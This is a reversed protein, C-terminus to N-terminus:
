VIFFDANTMALGHAVTAFQVAAAGGLGDKDYSIAGTASNYIIRDSADAAAAGIHFAAAALTGTITLATFIANELRITDNVVVFDSITDINTAGLAGNFFFTDNGAGGILNDIGLGGNILDNGAGGSLKNAHNGGYIQDNFQTGIVNPINTVTDTNGFGDKATDAPLGAQPGNGLLNVIVGLTGGNAADTSYDVTDLGSNGNLFDNGRGGILTDAGGGGRITDNGAGGNFVNAMGDGTLTDAGSGGTVNEINRITDEAVGAVTVIANATGALTVVVAGAKDNYVATDLGAGGDLVDKGLGGKMVDNGVGGLLTNIGTNGTLVNNGANGVGNINAAGLLTLNELTGLVHASNVLSFTISSLVTDIGISGAVGEDVTDGSNDVVYIDNGAKGRMIDAGAGGNLTNALADGTLTDAGSGGTVNEINRITDEAVGAVSVTANAAGNLTVVVAGAKDNYLATDVGTGGDLVDKGAGGKLIDNGGYGRLVDAFVTGTLTDAGALVLGLLGQTNNQSAYTHVTTAAISMGTILLATGGNLVYRVSTVTGGTPVHAANFTFGSGLFQTYNTTNDFYKASTASLTSFDYDYLKNVQLTDFNIPVLTGGSVVAM